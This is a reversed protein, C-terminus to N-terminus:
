LSAPYPAVPDGVEPFGFPPAEHHYVTTLSGVADSGLGAATVATYYEHTVMRRLTLDKDMEVTIHCYRFEPKYKLNSITKMQKQYNMVGYRRDLEAEVVYGQETEYIGTKPQGSSTTEDLLLTKPSVVFVLATSVYRGMMQKYEDNPYEQKPHGAYNPDGGWYTTTTDGTQYMRDYLAVVNSASNSEEFFREGMHVTTSFIGQNVLGAAVSSGVGQSWTNEEQEFLHYSVNIMEDVTLSKAFDGNGKAAEYKKMATDIDAEYGDGSVVYETVTPRFMEVVKFGTIGGGLIAILAVSPWYFAKAVLGIM